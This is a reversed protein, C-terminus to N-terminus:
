PFEVCFMVFAGWFLLLIRALAEAEQSWVTGGEMASLASGATGGGFGSRAACFLVELCLLKM